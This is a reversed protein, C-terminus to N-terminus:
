VRNLHTDKFGTQYKLGYGILRDLGIHAFWILALLIGFQWSNLVSFLGLAIPLSYTHAINYAHIGINKNLMYIIFVLDPAFLLGAFLWWNGGLFGYLAISSILVLLGELSLMIRQITLSKGSAPASADKLTSTIM